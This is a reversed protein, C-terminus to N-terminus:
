VTLDNERKLVHGQRFVEALALVLLGTFFVPSSFPFGSGGSITISHAQPLHMATGSVTVAAHEALYTFLAYHFWSEGVASVLSFVLLSVGIIQVLKITKPTFSEGRGVNRFLRRMLDFLVTFFVANLILLPLGYLKLTEILGHANEVRLSLAGNLATVAFVSDRLMLTGPVGNFDAKLPGFHLDPPLSPNIVVVLLLALAGLATFVTFIAFMWRLFKPLWTTSTMSM